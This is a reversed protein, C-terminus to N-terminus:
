QISLKYAPEQPDVDNVYSPVGVFSNWLNNLKYLAMKAINRPLDVYSTFIFRLAEKVNGIETTWANSWSNGTVEEQNKVVTKKPPMIVDEFRESAGKKELVETINTENVEDESEGDRVLSEETVNEHEIFDSNSINVGGIDTVESVTNGLATKIEDTVNGISEVDLKKSDIIKSSLKETQNELTLSENSRDKLSSSLSKGANSLLKFFNNGKFLALIRDSATLLSDNYMKEFNNISEISKSLRDFTNFLAILEYKTLKDVITQKVDEDDSDIEFLIKLSTAYGTTQVKGWLRCRDCHVCDMIKTVNKFRSRFDDKLKSSIDDHFLLDENFIKSDLNSVVSTIMSKVDEHYANCFGLHSLYPQIKWLAKAVVAYNFYINAVRDPFNGVRLMFLELNPGWKGTETNLHDNSLHTGISAHLGSVLRYFADKALSQGTENMSFCNERYVSSWIQSSQEGGYGTFREPNATLDVLVSEDHDFDEVDCYEIDPGKQGKQAFSKDCLQDLFACEDDRAKDASVSENAFGGLIEPQWYEPLQDWDEIVDVACARNVCYGNSDSWFPCQKYLNLKFYKFFDSHVLSLLDHRIKHNIDNIETFTVDCSSGVLSDKDMKCFNTTEQLSPQELDAQALLPGVALLSATWSALKM